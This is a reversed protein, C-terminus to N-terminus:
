LDGLPKKFIPKLFVMLNSTRTYREAVPKTLTLCDFRKSPQYFDFLM